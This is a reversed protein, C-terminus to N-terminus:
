ESLECPANTNKPKESLVRFPGCWLAAWGSRSQFRQRIRERKLEASVRCGSFKAPWRNADRQDGRHNARDRCNPQIPTTVQFVSPL